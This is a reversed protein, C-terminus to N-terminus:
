APQWGIALEERFAFRALHRAVVDQLMPIAEPDASEVTLTLLDGEASLRCDGKAFSM